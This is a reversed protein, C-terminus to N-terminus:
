SYERVIIFGANGATGAGVSAGGGAGGSGYGQASGSTGTEWAGIGGAGFYSAGGVGGGNANQTRSYTGEGGPLNLNGGSGSGSASIANTGYASGSGGTASMHSGFSTTGGASGNSTSTGAAGGSGITVTESTISSVDILKRSYGGAGGGPSGDAYGASGGGGGGVLEVEILNIGAPKTWTGSSAFTQVSSLGGGGSVADVWQPNAGTGNTKLVQGSTGAALRTYDTGDYYLIDGQADSGMAIKSGDVANNAIKATTVSGDALKATTVSGDSLETSNSAITKWTTADSRIWHWDDTTLAVTTVGDIQEASDPDITLTGAGINRIIVNFGNEVEAVPPLSATVASANLFQLETGVDSPLLTYNSAKITAPLEAATRDLIPM